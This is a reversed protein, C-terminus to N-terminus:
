KKLSRIASPILFPKIIYRFIWYITKFFNSILKLILLISLNISWIFPKLPKPNLLHRNILLLWYYSYNHKTIKIHFIKTILSLPTLLTYLFAAGLIAFISRNWIASLANELRYQNFYQIITFIPENKPNIYYKDDHLTETFLTNPTTHLINAASKIFNQYKTYLDQTPTNYQKQILYDDYAKKTTPDSLIKYAKNIQIFTTNNQKNSYNNTLSYYAQKVQQITSLNPLNLIAYLDDKFDM